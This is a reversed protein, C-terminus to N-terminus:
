GEAEKLFAISGMKRSEARIIRYLVGEYRIYNGAKVDDNQTFYMRKECKIDYGYHELALDGSYPQIDANITSIVREAVTKSYAGTETREVVEVTNDYFIEAFKNKIM